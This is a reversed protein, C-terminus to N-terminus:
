SSLSLTNLSLFGPLTTRENSEQIGVKLLLLFYIRHYQLEELMYVIMSKLSLVTGLM